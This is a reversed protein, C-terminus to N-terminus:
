DLVRGDRIHIVRKAEKAVDDEHTVIIISNGRRHLDRFLDLIERGTQSDLNGTPEDALLLSPKNVLARAIAVRQRQGGSLENPQHSMRDSLGVANLAEEAQRQREVRPMKAYVLPLEVNQLATTRSLLNFTQFVFGIKKNRVAALEDDNMAEVPTGDLIYKGATPRDLCGIINMLTSKGSGSPGMIAVYEGQEVILDIGRLAYIDQPGLQYVRTLEHMEILHHSNEM